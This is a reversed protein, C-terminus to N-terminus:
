KSVLKSVTTCPSGPGCILDRKFNVWGSGILYQQGVPHGERVADSVESKKRHGTYLIYDKNKVGDPRIPQVFVMDPDLLVVVSQSVAPVANKIWHDVGLPKNYYPFYERGEDLSFKPTIHVHYNPYSSRRMMAFDADDPCNSVIRTIHGQQGVMLASYALAEAQWNQYGSCDTSFVIHIDDDALGDVWPVKAMFLAFAVNLVTPWKRSATFLVLFDLAAGGGGRELPSGMAMTEIITIEQVHLSRM